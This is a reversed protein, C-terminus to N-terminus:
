TKLSQFLLCSPSQSIIWSARRRPSAPPPAPGRPGDYTPSCGASSRRARRSPRRCARAPPRSGGPRRGPRRTAPWSRRTRARGSACGPPPRRSRRRGRGRTARDARDHLGDGGVRGVVQAGVRPEPEVAAPALLLAGEEVPGGAGVLLGLPGLGIVQDFSLQRSLLKWTGAPPATLVEAVSKKQPATATPESTSRWILTWGVRDSITIPPSATSSSQASERVSQVGPAGAAPRAGARRPALGHGRRPPHHPSM